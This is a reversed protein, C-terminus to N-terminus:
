VTQGYLVPYRRLPNRSRSRIRKRCPSISKRGSISTNGQSVFLKRREHFGLLFSSKIPEFQRGKPVMEFGHYIKM